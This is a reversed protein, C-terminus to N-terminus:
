RTVADAGEVLAEFRPDLECDVVLLERVGGAFSDPFVENVAQFGEVGVVDVYPIQPAM